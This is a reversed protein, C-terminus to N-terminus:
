INDSFFIKESISIAFSIVFLSGLMMFATAVMKYDIKKTTSTSSNIDFCDQPRRTYKLLIKTLIGSQDVKSLSFFHCIFYKLNM